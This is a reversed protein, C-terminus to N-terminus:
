RMWGHDNSWDFSRLTPEGPLCAPTGAALVVPAVHVLLEDLEGVRLCHQGVVAVRGGAPVVIRHAIGAARWSPRSDARM